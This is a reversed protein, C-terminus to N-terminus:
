KKSRLGIRFRNINEDMLDTGGMSNIYNTILRPQLVQVISRSARSYRKVTAQPNVGSSTSAITVVNNDLWRVVMIRNTRDLISAVEARKKMKMEAKSIIPCNKPIRNDRITGTVSYGREKLHALLHFSTFLNDCFLSYPLQRKDNPLEDLMTVLPAACSGFVSTYNENFKPDKGQYMNFNILYGSKTNLCWVKYGFRIPKGKIFQKCSHRGFYKVMSRDYNFSEEPVYFQTFKKQLSEILPRLKYYKDTVNIKTNDSLHFFKWITLFRDRRMADSVMKCQMDENSDWYFKKGPLWHYGFLILIGLFCRIKDNTIHPDPCNKFLAYKTSESQIHSIIDDDFFLEFTEVPTLARYMDYNFHPFEFNTAQLDENIWEIYAYDIRKAESFQENPQIDQQSQNEQITTLDQDDSISSEQLIEVVAPALLQNRSLNDVEGGGDDDGSDEDTNIGADPPEVYISRVNEGDDYAIQLAEQLTLGGSYRSFFMNGHLVLTAM